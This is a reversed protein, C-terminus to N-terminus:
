PALRRKAEDLVERTRTCGFRTCGLERVRLARDLDRIGGAAKVQVSAPSHKRMLILDEDVAGGSGFGTSTKVWDVGLEGCIECLRIKHRDELYCNEFIVKVKAGEARAPELVSAIDKKVFDWEESIVAGINVVMDFESGGDKLGLKVEEAKAESRCTGHPFGIVTSSLVKSGRLRDACFKLRSPVICVSAVDYEIATDVGKEFVAVDMTPVLLSLDIMKAIDRMTCPMPRGGERLLPKVIDAIHDVVIEVRESADVVYHAAERYLEERQHLVDGVEDVLGKGTLSPRRAEDPDAELRGALLAAPASLYFVLGGDRMFRRNEDSLVMGGGTAVVTGGVPIERLVANERRRYGEWGERAVIEAVTLGAADLLVRDTDAFAMGLVGALRNGATTKGSARAGVLYINRKMARLGVGAALFLDSAVMRRIMVPMAM